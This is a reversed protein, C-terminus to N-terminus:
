WYFITQITWLSSCEYFKRGSFSSVDHGTDKTAM